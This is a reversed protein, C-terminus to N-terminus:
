RSRVLETAIKKLKWFPKRSKLVLLDQFIIQLVGERCSKRDTCWKKHKRGKWTPTTTFLTTGELSDISLSNSIKFHKIWIKSKATWSSITELAKIWIVQFFILRAERVNLTKLKKLVTRGRAHILPSNKSQFSRQSRRPSPSQLRSPFRRSRSIGVPRWYIISIWFMSKLKTCSLL